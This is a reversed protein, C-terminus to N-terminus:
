AGAPDRRESDEEGSGDESSSRETSRKRCMSIPIIGAADPKHVGCARRENRTLAAVWVVLGLSILPSDGRLRMELHPGFATRQM